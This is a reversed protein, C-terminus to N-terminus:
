CGLGLGVFGLGGLDPFGGVGFGLGGLDGFGWFRLVGFGFVFGFGWFGLVVASCTLRGLSNAAVIGKDLSRPQM